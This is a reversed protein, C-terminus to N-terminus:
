PSKGEPVALSVEVLEKVSNIWEMFAQCATQDIYPVCTLDLIFVIQFDSFEESLNMVPSATYLKCTVKEIERRGNIGRKRSLKQNCKKLVEEYNAFSVVGVIRM